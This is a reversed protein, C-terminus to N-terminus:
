AGDDGAIAFKLIEDSDSDATTLEWGVMRSTVTKGEPFRKSEIYVSFCDGLQDWGEFRPVQDSKLEFTPVTVPTRLRNRDAATRASLVGINTINGYTSVSWWAPYGKALQDTAGQVSRLQAVGSGAGLGVFMTGASSASEPWWYNDITGPFDFHLNDVHETSGLLPYGTRVIKLPKDPESSPRIDITYDFGDDADILQDVVEQAMHYEYGPVLVTKMVGSTGIQETDIGFDNHSQVQIAEIVAKFIFLQDQNQHIFNNQLAVHDFISEFTQASLQCTGSEEAYTRSWIIGGWILVGDREVYICTKGPETGDLLSVDDYLGTGLKFTGNFEGTTSLKRNLYVGYLPMEALVDGLLIDATYYRYETM